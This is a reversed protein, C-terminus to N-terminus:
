PYLVLWYFFTIAVILWLVQVLLQHQLPRAAVDHLDSNADTTAASNPKPNSDSDFPRVDIYTWLWHALAVSRSGANVASREIGRVDITRWIWIAMGVCSRGLQVIVRDVIGDDVVRCIWRSIRIVPQVVCVDYTEDFYFKNLFLVYLRKRVGAPFLSFLNFTTPLVSAIAWGCAAAILATVLLSVGSIPQWLTTTIIYPEGLAPMLFPKFWSWLLLLAAVLLLIGASVVLLHFRSYFKPKITQDPNHHFLTTVGRVCYMATFFVTLLGIVIFVVQAAQSQHATWLQQYPGSFLIVPPVCALALAGLHLSWTPKDHGSDGDAHSHGHTAAAELQNGTSLFLYGKLLGHALLHFLAAVFAGLGCTMIMFGIQSITSYALSKKIDTQTLSVIGAFLATTGGVIAIVMMAAPSLMVLPSLRILLFPGANVMTAAHILASVPTPAEMAQPLWVHFPIQASKGACGAFLFLTILTVTQIQLDGGTASLLNITQGSISPALELIEKIDLTGFTTYTLVLGFLLGVDAVANVLFAKTAANCAAKRESQHSILLYSCIGMLEWCIFIMLLNSSMVLTVMAFTFLAMLAFFRSYRTDGIMYRSSYAHVVFSVGTVLLLVLVSLQDVYLALNITLDGTKLLQYLPIFIPQGSVVLQLFALVSLGFSTGIALTGVKRSAEGLRHGALAIVIAALLPLLAILVYFASM